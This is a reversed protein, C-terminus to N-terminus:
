VNKIFYKLDGLGERVVEPTGDSFDIISTLGHFEVEGPDIILNILHSFKEEILASYLPYEDELEFMERNITMSLLVEGHVKLISQCFNTPPFRIGVQHDTKSAKLYKTILKKAEFIFTYSGPIVRKLLSFAGDPIHAVEMAKQFNPCLVTLHKTNDVHRLEYLREVGSRIFPNAVAVWNTETPFCILGGDNLIRSAKSLVRDDPNSEVVYDIM